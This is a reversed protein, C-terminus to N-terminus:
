QTSVALTSGDPSVRDLIKATKSTHTVVARVEARLASVESILKENGTNDASPNYAKPVIAEGKHVMALMDSPVFNTGVAFEPIKVGVNALTQELSSALAGRMRAVDVATRAQLITAQELERSIEPLRALAGMDGARAQATLIAFQSQLAAASQDKQLGRLRQIEDIMSSTAREMAQRRDDEAKKADQLAWIQKQLARNAPNLAALERRRLEATNGQLELLQAELSQRERLVETRKAEAEQAAELAKIKDYLARNSADLEARERRRLETTNGQLILLQNELSRREQAIQLAKQNLEAQRTLEEEALKRSSEQVQAFAPALNILAAYTQRGSDTMLDQAEVM